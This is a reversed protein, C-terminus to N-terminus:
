PQGEVILNQARLTTLLAERGAAKRKPTAPSPVPEGRVRRAGFLDMTLVTYGKGDSGTRTERSMEVASWHGPRGESKLFDVSWVKNNGATSPILNETKM